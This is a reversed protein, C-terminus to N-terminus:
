KKWVVNWIFHAIDGATHVIGVVRGLIGERFGQIALDADEYLMPMGFVTRWVEVPEDSLSGSSPCRDMGSDTADLPWCRWGPKSSSVYDEAEVDNDNDFVPVTDRSPTPSEILPSSCISLKCSVGMTHRMAPEQRELTDVGCKLMASPLMAIIPGDMKAAKNIDRRKLLERKAVSINMLSGYHSDLDRACYVNDMDDSVDEPTTVAIYQEVQQNFQIRKREVRPSSRTSTDV